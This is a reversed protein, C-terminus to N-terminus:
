AETGLYAALVRPDKQVAEPSGDAIKQGYNLVIIKESIGMVLNMDHEVLLISIGRSRVRRILDAIEQTETMNLGAVPEDLLVLEPSSVLARAMEIRKQEGYSLGAAPWSGKAELHFFDLMEWAKEEIAKEERRFGPLHFLSALFEKQTRCHLGVMVNELVTMNQFIQINQFTRTMGMSALHYPRYGHIMKGKFLIRGKRPRYIGSIINIATTKGAGNPGILATISGKPLDFSLKLLATLGGFHISVERVQLISDNM